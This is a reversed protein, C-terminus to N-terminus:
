RHRSSGIIRDARHRRGVGSTLQPVETAADLLRAVAESAIFPKQVHTTPVPANRYEETPVDSFDNCDIDLSGREEITTM